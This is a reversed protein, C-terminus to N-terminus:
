TAITEIDARISESFTINGSAKANDGGIGAPLLNGVNLHPYGSKAVLHGNGNITLNTGQNITIAAAKGISLLNVEESITLINNENDGAVIPALMGNHSGGSTNVLENQITVNNLTLHGGNTIVIQLGVFEADTTSNINVSTGDVKLIKYVPKNNVLKYAQTPLKSFDYESDVLLEPIDDWSLMEELATEVISEEEVAEVEEVIIETQDEEESQFEEEIIVEQHEEELHEDEIEELLEEDVVTNDIDESVEITEDEVVEDSTAGIVGTTNLVLFTSIILAIFKKYNNKM